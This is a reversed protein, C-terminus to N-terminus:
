IMKFHSLILLSYQTSTYRNFLQAKSFDTSVSYVNDFHILNPLTIGVLMKSINIFKIAIM